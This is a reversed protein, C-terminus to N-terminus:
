HVRTTGQTVPLEPDMVFRIQPLDTDVTTFTGVIANAVRFSPCNWAATDLRHLVARGREAQHITYKPDVQVLRPGPTDIATVQALHVSAIFNIDTGAVAEYHSLAVELVTRGARQVTALIRDHHTRLQIADATKAPFGWRHRLETTAQAANTYAQLTYGRPHVGARGMLRVQALAFSGVPTQAFRTVMVTIYRPVAPHMAKPLILDVDVMEVEFALYLQEAGPLEWPETEFDAMQPLHALVTQMELQGFLPMM